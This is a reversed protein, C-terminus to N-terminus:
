SNNTGTIKRELEGLRRTPSDGNWLETVGGNESYQRTLNPLGQQEIIYSASVSGYMAARYIDDQALLLGAALGGLFSNGAGTVDIVKDTNGVGWYADIWKGGRKRTAIYAGLHGSRIVVSGSGEEGVGLELFRSAAEEVVAKSVPETISLLSLAEDANPSLISISPLVSILAPLEEPICRDPIPEYVTIPKWGQIADVESIIAGARTPSCIFHILSPRDLKTNQLDKPTLRIRPTLYEFGREEGKYINRARTTGRSEHDRYLWMDQGYSDLKEQIDPPFDNGRDVIMGLQNPSLWMRAGITAYTGGGGIQPDATRGAHNKIDDLFTFEDIIFMGLTVLHRRQVSTM